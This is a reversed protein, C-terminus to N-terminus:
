DEDSDEVTASVGRDPLTNLRATLNDPDFHVVRRASIGSTAVSTARSTSPTNAVIYEADRRTHRQKARMARM